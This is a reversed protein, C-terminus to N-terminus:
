GTISNCAFRRPHVQQPLFQLFVMRLKLNHIGADASLRSGAPQAADALRQLLMPGLDDDDFQARVIPQATRGDLGCLAIKGRQDSLRQICTCLDQQKADLQRGVVPWVVGPAEARKIGLQCFFVVDRQNGEQELTNRGFLELGVVQM